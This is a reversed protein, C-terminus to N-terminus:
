IGTVVELKTSLESRGEVRLLSFKSPFSTGLLDIENTKKCAVHICPQKEQAKKMYILPQRIFPPKFM